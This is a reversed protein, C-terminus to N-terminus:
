HILVDRTKDYIKETTRGETKPRLIIVFVDILYVCFYMPLRKEVEVGDTREWGTLPYLSPRTKLIRLQLRVRENQFGLNGRDM